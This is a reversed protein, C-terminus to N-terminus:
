AGSLCINLFGKVLKYSSFEPCNAKLYDGIATGTAEPAQHSAKLLPFVVLTYDGEFEKRTASVQLSEAPCDAGYLAKVAESAKAALFQEATM